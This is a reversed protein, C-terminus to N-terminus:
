YDDLLPCGAAFWTAFDDALPHIMDLFMSGQEVLGLRGDALSLLIEYGGSDDGVAVFGPCYPKVRFTENREVFAERGYILVVDSVSLSQEQRGLFGRYPEPLTQGVWTEIEGLTLKM